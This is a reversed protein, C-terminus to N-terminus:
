GLRADEADLIMEKKVQPHRRFEAVARVGDDTIEFIETSLPYTGHEYEELVVEGLGPLKEFIDAAGNEFCRADYLYMFNQRPIVAFLPWGLVPEVVKRLNPALMLSAKFPLETYIMAFRVGRHVRVILDSRQLAAALNADAAAAAAEESVSMDILMHSELGLFNDTAPDHLVLARHTQDSLHIALDSQDILDNSQITWYVQRETKKWDDLSPVDDLISTAFQMVSYADGYKAFQRTVNFLNVTADFGNGCDVFYIRNDTGRSFWLGHMRWERECLKTCIRAAREIPMRYDSGRVRFELRYRFAIFRIVLPALLRRLTM